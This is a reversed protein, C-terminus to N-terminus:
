VDCASDPEPARENMGHAGTGAPPVPPVPLVRVLEFARSATLVDLARKQGPEDPAAVFRLALARSRPRMEAIRLGATRLAGNAMAVTARPDLVAALEPARLGPPREPARFDRVADGALQEPEGGLLRGAPGGAMAHEELRWRLRAPDITSAAAHRLTVTGVPMVVAGAALPGLEIRGKVIEVGPGVDILEAVVDELARRGNVIRVRYAREVRGEPLEIEGEAQLVPTESPAAAAVRRQGSGAALTRPAVSSHVDTPTWRESSASESGGGCGALVLGFAGVLAPLLGGAVATFNFPQHRM